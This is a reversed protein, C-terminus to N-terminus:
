TATGYVDGQQSVVRVSQDSNSQSDYIWVSKGIYIEQWGGYDVLRNPPNARLTNAPRAPCLRIDIDNLLRLAVLNSIGSLARRDQPSSPNIITFISSEFGEEEDDSESDPDDGPAPPPINVSADTQMPSEDPIEVFDKETEQLRALFSRWADENSYDTRLLIGLEPGNTEDDFPDRDATVQATIESTSHSQGSM